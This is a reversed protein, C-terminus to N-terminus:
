ADGDRLRFADSLRAPGGPRADILSIMATRRSRFAEAVAEVSRELGADAPSFRYAVRAGALRVALGKRVLRELREGIWDPVHHLRAAAEHATWVREPDDRLLLLLELEGVSAIHERVFTQLAPTFPAPHM